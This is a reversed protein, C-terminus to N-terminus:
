IHSGQFLCPSQINDTSGVLWSQIQLAPPLHCIMSCWTISTSINRAAQNIQGNIEGDMKSSFDRTFHPLCCIILPSLCIIFSHAWPEIAWRLPLRMWPLCFLTCSSINPLFSKVNSHWTRQVFLIVSPHLAWQNNQGAVTSLRMLRQNRFIRLLLWLNTNAGTIWM